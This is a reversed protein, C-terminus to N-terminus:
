CLADCLFSNFFGAISIFRFRDPKPQPRPLRPLDFAGAYRESMTTRLKDASAANSFTVSRPRLKMRGPGWWRYLVQAPVYNFSPQHSDLHKSTGSSGLGDEYWAYVHDTSKAIDIEVINAAIKGIPLSYFNPARHKDLNDTTGISVTIDDYWTYVRDDKAIGIGVISKTTRGPPLTYQYPARYKDLNATTGSSVTGDKTGLTFTTTQGPM